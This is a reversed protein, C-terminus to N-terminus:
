INGKKLKSLKTLIINERKHIGWLLAEIMLPQMEKIKILRKELYKIKQETESNMIRKDGLM